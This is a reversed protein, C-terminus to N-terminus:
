PLVPAELAHEGAVCCLGVRAVLGGRGTLEIWREVYRVVHPKNDIVVASNLEPVCTANYETGLLQDKDNWPVYLITM